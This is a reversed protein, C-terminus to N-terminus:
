EIYHIKEKDRAEGTIQTSTVDLRNTDGSGM